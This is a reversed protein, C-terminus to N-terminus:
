DNQIRRIRSGSSRLTAEKLQGAEVYRLRIAKIKKPLRPSFRIKGNKRKLGCFGIIASLYAGGNSAPHTGGIYVGGAYQKGGGKLDIQASDLFFAYAKEREGIESALLSYMCASLSSGHETRKEYYEFNARKVRASFEWPFLALATVVDAQKIIKTPTAVGGEGGWYENPNKLRSRVQELTADEKMFYGAFQEIVGDKNPRPVFLSDAFALLSSPSFSGVKALIEMYKNPNSFSLRDSLEATKRAVNRVLYNTYADDNVREHYEDPGLVDNLHLMGDAGRMAYDEYFENIRFLTEMSEELLKEDGTSEYASIIGWAVDGSIHIQKDAFYTRIPKGTVADTVNYLSCAEDGTDQSEWAYFAGKYGYSQAKRMAGSLTNIRYHVLFLAVAPDTLLFFPLMYMETDWFIAGKYIQGCLGRAPISTIYKRPALCLLEYISYRLAFDAEGDGKILVESSAWARAWANAHRTLRQRFTRLSYKKAKEATTELINGDEGFMVSSAINLHFREGRRLRFEFRKGIANPSEIDTSPWSSSIVSVVSCYRNENTRGLYQIVGNEGIGANVTQLHPGNIDWVDEDIMSEIAFIGGKKAILDYRISLCDSDSGDVFRTTEIIADKFETTRKLVARYLDLTRSHRLPKETRVSVEHGEHYAIVKWPNPANVSERWKDGSRDYAGVINLAVKNEKGQEELTGRYGLRGNGLLLLVSEKDGLSPDFFTEEIVHKPM